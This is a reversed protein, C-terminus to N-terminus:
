RHRLSRRARRDRRGSRQAGCDCTHTLQDRWHAMVYPSFGNEKGCCLCKWKTAGDSQYTKAVDGRTPLSPRKVAVQEIGEKQM